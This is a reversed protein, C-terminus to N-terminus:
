RNESSSVNCLLFNQGQELGVSTEHDPRLMLLENAETGPGLVTTRAIQLGLSPSFVLSQSLPLLKHTNRKEMQKAAYLVDM